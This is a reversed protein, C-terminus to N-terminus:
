RRERRERRDERVEGTTRAVEAAALRDLEALLARKSAVQATSAGGAAFVPQLDLLEKAIEKLRARDARERALDVRDDVADLRDGAGGRRGERASRHAERRDEGVEVQTEALERRIWSELHADAALEAARDGSAVAANWDAIVAGLRGLDVVDGVRERRDEGVTAVDQAFSSSILILSFFM